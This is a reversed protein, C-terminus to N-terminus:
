IEIRSYKKAIIFVFLYLIIMVPISIMSDYIAFLIFTAFFCYFMVDSLSKRTYAKEYYKRCLGGFFYFAFVSWYGFEFFVGAYGTPTLWPRFYDNNSLSYKERFTILKVNTDYMLFDKASQGFITSSVFQYIISNYITIGWNYTNERAVVEMNKAAEVVENSKEADLYEAFVATLSINSIQGYDGKISYARAIPFVIFVFISVLIGPIILYQKIKIGKVFFLPFMITIFLTFVESRRGYVFITICSSVLSLLLFFLKNKSPKLLYLILLMITAPRLFRAPYVLIAFWGGQSSGFDVNGIVFFAIFSVCMFFFLIKSMKDEDFYEMEQRIPRRIKKMRYGLIASWFCVTSFLSYRIYESDAMVKYNDMSTLLTPLIFIMTAISFLFPLQYIEERNRYAQFIPIVISIMLVYFSFERM